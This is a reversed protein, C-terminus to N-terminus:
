QHGANVVSFLVYEISLRCDFVTAISLRTRTATNFDTSQRCNAISITVLFATLFLNVFDRPFSKQTSMLGISLHVLSAYIVIFRACFYCSISVRTCWLLKVLREAEERNENRCFLHM